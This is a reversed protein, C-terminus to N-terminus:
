IAKLLHPRERRIIGYITAPKWPAGNRTPIGDANLREAIAAFSRRKRQGRRKRRLDLIRELTEREGPVAGFPKVGECRGTEARKAARAKALKRVLLKKDLQAFVGQMIVMAERMPDDLSGTVDEGTTASILKIGHAGMQRTEAM